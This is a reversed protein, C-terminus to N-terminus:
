GNKNGSKFKIKAGMLNVVKHKKVGIYENRVSFIKEPLSLQKTTKDSFHVSHLVRLGDKEENTKTFVEFLVPKNYNQNCFDDIKSDYSEKSDASLYHFGCSIAWAKAGNIYHGGASVLVDSKEGLVRELHPNARMTFGTNNNIVLIRLNDKIHRNGIINMDYFFALDGTICFIKKTTDVLSQGVATSIAGDIGFGGVNSVVNINSPIEFYTMNQTPMLISLHLSCNSPLYDAIKQTIYSTSFPLPNIIMSDIKERLLRYYNNAERKENLLEKFIGKYRGILLKQMARDERAQYKYNEVIRWYQAKDLLGANGYICSIGGLDLVIDPKLSPTNLLKFQPILIKNAGNYNSTHECFVAANYSRVFASIAEEEHPAFKRHKGILIAVKKNQLLTKLLYFDEFIYETKWTDNPLTKIDYNFSAPCNIHVPENNYKARSLCANLSTLIFKKDLIDKNEPLHISMYKIDNQSISRDTYQPAMNYKHTHRDYFTLAIIPVEAYYAETMASMYNRAATAGTCTIVIPEKTESAIGIAVYAASREDVISYCKFYSDEQVIYNFTSNQTGPSAVIHRIGYEKLEAIIYHLTNYQTKDNTM